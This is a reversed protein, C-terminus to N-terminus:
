SLPKKEYRDTQNLRTFKVWIQSLQLKKKNRAKEAKKNKAINRFLVNNISPETKAIAFDILLSIEYNRLPNTELIQLGM